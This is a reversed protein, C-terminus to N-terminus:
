ISTLIKLEAWGGVDNRGEHEHISDIQIILSKTQAGQLRLTTPQGPADPLTRKHEKGDSLILTVDKPQQFTEQYDGPTLVVRDLKVTQPFNFKLAAGGKMRGIVWATGPNDDFAREIGYQENPYCHIAQVSTGTAPNVLNIGAGGLDFDAAEASAFLHEYNRPERLLEIALKANKEERPIADFIIKVAADPETITVRTPGDLELSARDENLPAQKPAGGNLGQYKVIPKAGDAMRTVNGEYSVPKIEIAADGTAIPLIPAATLVPYQGVEWKFTNIIQGGPKAVITSERVQEGQKNMWKATWVPWQRPFVYGLDKPRPEADMDYVQWTLFAGLAYGKWRPVGPWVSPSQPWNDWIEESFNAGWQAIIPANARMAEQYIIDAAKMTHPGSGGRESIAGDFHWGDRMVMVEAVTQFKRLMQAWREDNSARYGDAMLSLHDTTYGGDFHLGKGQFKNGEGFIPWGGATSGQAAVLDDMNADYEAMVEQRQKPDRLIEKTHWQGIAYSMPRNCGGDMAGQGRVYTDHYESFPGPTRSMAARYLMQEYLDDRKMTWHRVTVEEQLEPRNQERMWQLARALDALIMGHTYEGQLRTRMEPWSGDWSQIRAMMDMARVASAVGEEGGFQAAILAVQQTRGQLTIPYDKNIVDASPARSNDYTGDLWDVLALGDIYFKGSAPKLKLGDEFPLRKQVLVLDFGVVKEFFEKPPTKFVGLSHDFVYGWDFYILHPNDGFRQVVPTDAFIIPDADEGEVKLHLGVRLDESLGEPTNVWLAFGSAEELVNIPEDFRVQIKHPIGKHSHNQPIDEMEVLWAKGDGDADWATTESVEVNGVGSYRAVLPQDPFHGVRQQEVANQAAKELARTKVELVEDWEVAATAQTLSWLSLAGILPITRVCHKM